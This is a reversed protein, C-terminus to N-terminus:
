ANPCSPVSLNSPYVSKPDLTQESILACSPPPRSNSKQSSLSLSTELTINISNLISLLINTRSRLVMVLLNDALPISSISCSCFQLSTRVVYSFVENIPNFTVNDLTKLLELVVSPDLM